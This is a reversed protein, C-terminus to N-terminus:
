SSCDTFTGDGNNRLLRNKGLNAFFLDSFGDENFDGVACGQGFDTLGVGASEGATVFRGGINRLLENAASDNGFMKGGAGMVICDCRGDLDFDIAGGGTGTSRVLPMKSPDIPSKDEGIGALGWQDSVDTLRLHEAIKIPPVVSTPRARSREVFTPIPLRSLDVSIGPTDRESIWSPDEKLRIVIQNRLSSLDKDPQQKLTMAVATWAEAEWNRGLRSLAEAVDVALRQSQQNSWVFETFSTRMAILDAVRRQFGELESISVIAEDTGGDPNFLRTALSLRTWASSNNPDRRTAEWYARIAQADDGRHTCWDGVAIWYNAFEDCGPPTERYWQQVDDFLGLSSLNLGMLASAVAFNPDSELIEECVQRSEDFRQSDNLEVAKALLIRGDEPNRERLLEQTAATHIRNAADTFTVLFQLDFKRNQILWRYHPEILDDRQAEKLFGVLLIRWNSQNPHAQIAQELLAIVGYLDGVDMLAHIAFEVHPAAFDALRAADAVLKSALRRNGTMASVKAVDTMVDPDNPRVILAEKVDESALQWKEARM